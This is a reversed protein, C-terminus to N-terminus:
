YDAAYPGTGSFIATQCGIVIGSYERVLLMERAAAFDELELDTRDNVCDVVQREMQQWEQHTPAEQIEWAMSVSSFHEDRCTETLSHVEDRSDIHYPGIGVGWAPPRRRDLLEPERHPVGNEDLCAVYAFFAAEYEEWTLRRDALAEQQSTPIDVIIGAEFLDISPRTTPGPDRSGGCAALLLGAAMLTLIVPRPRHGSALAHKSGALASSGADNDFSRPHERSPTLM